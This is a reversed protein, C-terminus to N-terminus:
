NLNLDVGMGIQAKELWECKLVESAHQFSGGHDCFVKLFSKCHSEAQSKKSIWVFSAKFEDIIGNGTPNDKVENNILHEQFMKNAIISSSKISINLLECLDAYHQDVVEVILKKLQDIDFQQTCKGTFLFYNIKCMLLKM